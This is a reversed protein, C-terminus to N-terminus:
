RISILCGVKFKPDEFVQTDDFVKPDDFEISDNSIVKPGGCVQIMLSWREM